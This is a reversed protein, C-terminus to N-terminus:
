STLKFANNQSNLKAATIGLSASASARTKVIKILLSCNKLKLFNKEKAGKKIYGQSSFHKLLLLLTIYNRNLM